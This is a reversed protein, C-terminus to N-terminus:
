VCGIIGYGTRAEERTTLSCGDVGVERVANAPLDEMWDPM